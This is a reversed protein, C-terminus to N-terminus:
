DEKILTNITKLNGYYIILKTELLLMLDHKKHVNDCKKLDNFIEDMEDLIKLNIDNLSKCKKIVNNNM